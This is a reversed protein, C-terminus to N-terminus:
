ISSDKMDEVDEVGQRLVVVVQHDNRLVDRIKSAWKLNTGDELRVGLPAGLEVGYSSDYRCLAVNALWQIDQSSGDGCQVTIQKDRVCVRIKM